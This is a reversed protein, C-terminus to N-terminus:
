KAGQKRKRRLALVAGGVLFLLGNTPEPVVTYVNPSWPSGIINSTGDWASIHSDELLKQYSVVESQMSTRVWQGNSYNGLELVFNYSTGSLSSLSGFYEAPVGMGFEGGLGVSGDYVSVTGDDNLGLMTLYGSTGDVTSEYRIRVDTVGLDGATYVKGDEANTGSLNEYGTGITWWLVEGNGAACCAVSAFLSLLLFIKKGVTKM